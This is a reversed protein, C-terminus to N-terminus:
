RVVVQCVFVASVLKSLSACQGIHNIGLLEHFLVEFVPSLPHEVAFHGACSFSSTAESTLM